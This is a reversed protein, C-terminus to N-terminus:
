PVHSTWGSIGGVDFGDRFVFDTPGASFNFAFSGSVQLVFGGLVVPLDGYTGTVDTLAMAGTGSDVSLTGALVVTTQASVAIITPNQNLQVNATFLVPVNLNSFAGTSPNVSVVPTPANPIDSTSRVRLGNATVQLLQGFNFTVSSGYWDANQVTLLHTDTDYTLYLVSAPQIQSTANRPSLVPSEPTITIGVENTEGNDPRAGNPITTALATASTAALLAGALWSTM